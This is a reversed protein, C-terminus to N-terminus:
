SLVLRLYHDRRLRSMALIEAESWGYRSALLHVEALLRPAHADLEATYFAAMDLAAESHQGCSPCALELRWEAASDAAELAMDLQQALAPPLKHLPTGDAATATVCRDMLVRYAAAPDPADAAAICDSLTPLRLTVQCGDHTIQRAQAAQAPAPLSDGPLDATDALLRSDVAFELQEGCAPCNSVGVLRRGFARERLMLLRRNAEGLPLAACAAADADPWALAILAATRRPLTTAQHATEWQQLLAADITPPM